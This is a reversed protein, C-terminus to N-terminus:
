GDEEQLNFLNLYIEWIPIKEGTLPSILYQDEDM